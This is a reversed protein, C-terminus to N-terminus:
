EDSKKNLEVLGDPLNVFIKAADDDIEEIFEDVVPVYVTDGDPTEIVFLVNATTNDVDAVKGIPGAHKDIIEYNIFSNTLEMDPDDMYDILDKRLGYIEKNVLKQAEEQSDVGKLKILFSTAGKTRASETFFPVYIGDIEVVLARHDDLFDEDVDLVANLEGQLAHTKQFKGIEVIEDKTIM